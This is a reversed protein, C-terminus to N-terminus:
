DKKKSFFFRHKPKSTSPVPVPIPQPTVLTATMVKDVVKAVNSVTSVVPALTVLKGVNRSDFLNQDDTILHDVIRKTFFDMNFRKSERFKRLCELEHKDHILLESPELSKIKWTQSVEVINDLLKHLDNNFVYNLDRDPVIEEPKTMTRIVRYSTPKLDTIVDVKEPPSTVDLPQKTEDTM